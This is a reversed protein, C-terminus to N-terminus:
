RAGARGALRLTRVRVVLVLSPVLCAAMITVWVVTGVGLDFIYFAPAGPRSIFMPTIVLWILFNWLLGWIILSNALERENNWVGAM